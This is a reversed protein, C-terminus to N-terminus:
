KEVVDEFMKDTNESYFPPFGFTIEYLLAGLGYYDVSFNHGQKLIMEPSM